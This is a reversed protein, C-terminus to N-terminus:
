DCVEGLARRLSIVNWDTTMLKELEDMNEPIIHLILISGDRLPTRNPEFTHEDASWNVPELEQTKLFSMYAPTWAGYPARAYPAVGKDYVDQGIVSLLRESWQQYDNQWDAATMKEVISVEPHSYSHYGIENGNEVLRVLNDKSIKEGFSTGVLFFTATVDNEELVDLMQDFVSNSYGDDITLVVFPDFTQFSNLLQKKSYEPIARVVSTRCMRWEPIATPESNPTPEPPTTEEPVPIPTAPLVEPLSAVPPAALQYACATVTLLTVFLVPLINRVSLNMM